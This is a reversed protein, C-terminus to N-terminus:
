QPLDLTALLLPWRPIKGALGPFTTKRGLNQGWGEMALQKGLSEPGTPGGGMQGSELRSSQPLVRRALATRWPITGKGQQEGM